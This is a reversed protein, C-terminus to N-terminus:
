LLSMRHLAMVDVVDSGQSLPRKLFVDTVQRTIAAPEILAKQFSDFIPANTFLTAM